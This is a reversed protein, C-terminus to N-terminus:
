FEDSKLKEYEALIAKRVNDRVEKNIFYCIDFHKNDKTKYSPMSVFTKGNAEIVRINRIVLSNSLVISGAAKINPRDTVKKLRIETVEM